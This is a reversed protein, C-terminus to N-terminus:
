AFGYELPLRGLPHVREVGAAEVMSGFREIARKLFRRLVHVHFIRNRSPEAFHLYKVPTRRVGNERLHNREEILEVLSITEIVPVHEM